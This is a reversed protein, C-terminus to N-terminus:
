KVLQDYTLYTSVLTAVAGVALLAKKQSVSRKLVKIKKDKVIFSAGIMVLGAAGLLQKPKMEKWGEIMAEPVQKFEAMGHMPNMHMGSMAAYNPSPYYAYQNRVRAQDLYGQRYM